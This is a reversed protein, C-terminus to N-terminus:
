TEAIRKKLAELEVTADKVAAAWPAPAEKPLAEAAAKEYAAKATAFDGANRASRALYLLFVPSHALKEAEEFKHQAESWSGKNYLDIGEHGLTRAKEPDSATEALAPASLALLM